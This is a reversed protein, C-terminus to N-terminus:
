TLREEAPDRVRQKRIINRSRELGDADDSAAPGSGEVHTRLGEDAGTPRYRLM